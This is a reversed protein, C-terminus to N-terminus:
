RFGVQDFIYDERILQLIMVKKYPLYEYERETMYNVNRIKM